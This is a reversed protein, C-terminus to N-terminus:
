SRGKYKIICMLYNSYLRVKIDTIQRCKKDKNGVTMLKM